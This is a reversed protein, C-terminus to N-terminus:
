AGPLWSAARSWAGDAVPEARWATGESSGARDAIRVEHQRSALYGAVALGGNGAGIVAVISM